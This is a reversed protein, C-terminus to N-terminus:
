LECGEHWTIENSFFFFNLSCFGYEIDLMRATAGRGKGGVCDGGGGGGERSGRSDMVTSYWGNGKDACENICVNIKDM